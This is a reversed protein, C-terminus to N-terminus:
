GANAPDAAALRDAIALSAQHHEAAATLDGAASVVDGLREGIVAPRNQWWHDDPNAAAIDVAHPLALRLYDRADTLYGTASALDAQDVLVVSLSGQWALD